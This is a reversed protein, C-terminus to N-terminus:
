MCRDARELAYQTGAVPVKVVSRILECISNLVPDEAADLVNLCQVTQLREAEDAPIPAGTHLAIRDSIRQPESRPEPASEEPEPVQAESKEPFESRNPLLNEKADEAAGEDRKVM